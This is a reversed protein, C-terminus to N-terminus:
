KVTSKLCCLMYFSVWGTPTYYKLIPVRVLYTHYRQEQGSGLHAGACLSVREEIMREIMREIRIDSIYALSEGM